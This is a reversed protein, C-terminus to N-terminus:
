NCNISKLTFIEVKTNDQYFDYFRSYKNSSARDLLLKQIQRQALVKDKPRFLSEHVSWANDDINIIAIIDIELNKLKQFERMSDPNSLFDFWYSITKTPPNINTTLNILAGHPFAILNKPKKECLSLKENIIELHNSLGDNKIKSVFPIKNSVVEGKYSNIGWWHYVKSKKDNIIDFSVSFIIFITFIIGLNKFSNLSLLLCILFGVHLFISVPTLGASTAAAFTMGFLFIGLKKDFSDNKIFLLFILPSYGSWLYAKNWFFNSIEKQFLIRDLDNFYLIVLITLGFIFILLYKKTFQIFENEKLLILNFTKKEFLKHFKFIILLPILIELIFVQLKEFSYFDSRPPLLTTLSHTIGGKASGANIIINEYIDTIGQKSLFPFFNILCGFFSGLLPYILINKQKWFRFIFIAFITIFLLSGNSQKTLFCLSAFFGGIFLLGNNKKTSIIYFALLGFINAIHIFDYSLIANISLYFILSFLSAISSQPKPFNINLIKYTIFFLINLNIQGLIRSIFITNEGLCLIFYSYWYYFPTLYAYFDTYPLNGQEIFRGALLFWGETLPLYSYNWSIIFLNLFTLSFIFFLNDIDNKSSFNLRM